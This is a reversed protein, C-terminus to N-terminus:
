GYSIHHLCWSWLVHVSVGSRGLQLKGIWLFYPTFVLELSCPCLSRFTGAPAERDMLFITYVGAGSFM